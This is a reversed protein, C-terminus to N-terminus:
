ITLAVVGAKSALENLITQNRFAFFAALAAAIAGGIIAWKLLDMSKQGAINAASSAARAALNDIIKSDFESYLEFFDKPVPDGEIFFFCPKAKFYYNESKDIDSIKIRLRTIEAEVPAIRNMLEIKQSEELAALNFGKLLKQKRAELREIISNIDAEKKELSTRIKEKEKSTIYRTEINLCKKPNTAYINNNIRFSNEKPELFSLGAFRTSNIIFVFCGKKNFFRKFAFIIDKGAIVLIFLGFTMLIMAGFTLWIITMMNMAM